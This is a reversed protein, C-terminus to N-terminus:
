CDLFLILCTQVSKSKILVNHHSTVVTNKGSNELAMQNTIKILNKSPYVLLGNNKSELHKM